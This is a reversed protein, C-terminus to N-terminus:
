SAMIKHLLGNELLTYQLVAAQAQWLYPFSPNKNYEALLMVATNMANDMRKLIERNEESLGSSAEQSLGSWARHKETVTGLTQAEFQVPEASNIRVATLRSILEVLERGQRFYGAIADTPGGEWRIAKVEPIGYAKIFSEAEAQDLHHKLAIADERSVALGAYVHYQGSGRLESAGSFGMNELQQRATQARDASSFIGHQLIHYSRAPLDIQLVGNQVQAPVDANQDSHQKDTDPQSSVEGNGAPIDEPDPLVTEGGSAPSPATHEVPESAPMSLDTFMALVFWGFLVGTAIAGAASAVLKLWNTGPPRFMRTMLREETVIPGASDDFVTEDAFRGPEGAHQDEFREEQDAGVRRNIRNSATGGPETGRILEELRRVEADFPSSWAGFDTTFQNLTGTDYRRVERIEDAESGGAEEWAEIDDAHNLPIIAGQKLGEAKAPQQTGPEEQKRYPIPHGTQDFRVTIRAKNM